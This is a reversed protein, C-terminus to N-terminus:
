GKAKKPKTRTTQKAAAEKVKKAEARRKRVSAKHACAQSCYMREHKSSVEYVESCDHLACVQFKIGVIHDVYVTALMAELASRVDLQAVLPRPEPHDRYRFLSHPSIHLGDPYGYIAAREDELVDKVIPKFHDHTILGFPRPDKREAETQDKGRKLLGPLGQSLLIGIFEQWLQFEGWTMSTLISDEDVETWNRFHGSAALWTLAEAPTKVCLFADRLQHADICNDIMPWIPTDGRSEFLIGEEISEFSVAVTIPHYVVLIPMPPLMRVSPKKDFGFPGLEANKPLSFHAVSQESNMTM